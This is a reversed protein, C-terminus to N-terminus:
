TTSGASYCFGCGQEQPQVNYIRYESGGYIILDGKALPELSYFRMCMSRPDVGEIIEQSNEEGQVIFEASGFVQSIRDGVRLTRKFELAQGWRAFHPSCVPM